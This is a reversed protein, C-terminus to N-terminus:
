GLNSEDFNGSLLWREGKRRYSSVGDGGVGTRWGHAALGVGTGILRHLLPFLIDFVFATTIDHGGVDCFGSFSSCSMNGDMPIYSHAIQSCVSDVKVRIIGECYDM